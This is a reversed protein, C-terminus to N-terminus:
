AEIAEKGAVTPRTLRALSPSTEAAIRVVGEVWRDDSNVCPVVDLVQGGNERWIGRARIGLEELTELCDAVFAPSLIVARKVGRRAHEALVVDTQPRIWPDRGLRSQFCVVRKSEAIRLALALRRATAECQARYCWRHAPSPRVCCDATALCHTGVCDSKHIQREPLGHFSFFVMEADAAEVIPRAVGACADIFASHDYFPPVIEVCPANVRRGVEQYVRELSSGTAASSYQPYLPFVVIREAGRRCITELAQAISPRGYRMGLEVIAQPGLRDRVRDRLALGHVLLPSGHATWIKAYAKGSAHPRFPLILLHLVLLRKWSPIDLVRPDSLFERLYRRVDRPRYSDPTGLNILLLGTRRDDHRSLHKVEM